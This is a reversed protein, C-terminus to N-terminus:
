RSGAAAAQAGVQRVWIEPIQEDGDFFTDPRASHALAAFSVGAVARRKQQVIKLPAASSSPRCPSRASNRPRVPVKLAGSLSRQEKASAGARAALRDHGAQGQSATM